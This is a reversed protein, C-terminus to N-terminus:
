NDYHYRCAIVIAVLVGAAIRQLTINEDSENCPPTPPAFAIFGAGEGVAAAAVVEQILLNIRKFLKRDHHQLWTHIRSFDVCLWPASLNESRFTAPWTAPLKLQLRCNRNAEWAEWTVPGHFRTAPERNCPEARQKTFRGPM